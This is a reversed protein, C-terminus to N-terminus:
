DPTEARATLHRLSYEQALREALIAFREAVTEEIPDMSHAALNRLEILQHLSTYERMDILGANRLNLAIKSPPAKEMRPGIKLIAFARLKEELEKWSEMVVGTPNARLAMDDRVTPDATITATGSITASASVTDPAESVDVHGEIGPPPVASVEAEVKALGERFKASIGGPLSLESLKPIREIIEKKFLRIIFVAAFPWAVASLVSSVFKLVESAKVDWFTNANAVAVTAVKTATVPDVVIESEKQQYRFILV